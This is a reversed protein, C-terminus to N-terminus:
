WNSAIKILLNIKFFPSLRSVLELRASNRVIIERTLYYNGKVKTLLFVGNELNFIHKLGTLSQISLSWSGCGVEFLLVLKTSVTEKFLLHFKASESQLM